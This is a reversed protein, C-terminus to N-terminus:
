KKRVGMTPIEIFIAKEGTIVTVRELHFVVQLSRKGGQLPVINACGNEQYKIVGELQQLQELVSM